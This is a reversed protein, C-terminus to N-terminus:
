SNSESEDRKRTSVVRYEGEIIEVNHPPRRIDNEGSAFQKRIKRNLWWVRIGIVAALVFVLAGLTVFAVVGLVVSVAVALTGVIVVFLNALPNGM